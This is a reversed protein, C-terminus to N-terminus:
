HDAEYQYEILYDRFALHKVMEKTGTQYIHIHHTRKNDKEKIFYMRGKIGNEGRPKFGTQLGGLRELCSGISKDM